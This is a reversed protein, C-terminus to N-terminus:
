NSIIIQKYTFGEETEIGLIYSGSSLASVAVNISNLSFTARTKHLVERGNFGIIKINKFPLTNDLASITFFDKVPM